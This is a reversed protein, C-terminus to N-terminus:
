DGHGDYKPIQKKYYEEKPKNYLYLSEDTASIFGANILVEYKYEHHIRDPWEEKSKYGSYTERDENLSFVYYDDSRLLYKPLQSM